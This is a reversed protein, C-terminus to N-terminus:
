VRYAGQLLHAVFFPRFVEKPGFDDTHILKADTVDLHPIGCARASAEISTGQPLADLM